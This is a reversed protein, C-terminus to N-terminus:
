FNEDKLIKELEILKQIEFDARIQSLNKENKPNYWVTKILSDKGGKIDSTLSDGIMLYSKKDYDKTYDFIVDFFKKDPKEYGIEESIFVKEFIKDLGSKKLKGDQAIKTGNTAGFLRYNKAQKEVLEKAHDNFDSFNGLSLQFTDNFDKAISYDLGYKKFFEVFRDLLVEDRSIEGRELAQWYKKNIKKYSELMDDTLSGLSYKEFGYRLSKEEALDFNLLTGDIDWLIYKIM